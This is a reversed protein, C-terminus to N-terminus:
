LRRHTVQLCFKEKFNRRVSLAASPSRVNAPLLPSGAVSFRSPFDLGQMIVATDHRKVRKNHWQVLTTHSMDVLQLSTSTM